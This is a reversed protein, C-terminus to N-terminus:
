IAVSVNIQLESRLKASLHIKRRLLRYIFNQPVGLERRQQRSFTPCKSSFKYYSVLIGTALRKSNKGYLELRAASLLGYLM